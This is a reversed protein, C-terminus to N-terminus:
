VGDTLRDMFSIVAKLMGGPMLGPWIGGSGHGIWHWLEDFSKRSENMTSWSFVDVWRMYIEKVIIKDVYPRMLVVLFNFMSFRRIDYMERLQQAVTHFYFHVKRVSVCYDVMQVATDAPFVQSEFAELAGMSSDLEARVAEVDQIIKEITQYGVVSDTGCASFKRYHKMIYRYIYNDIRSGFVGVYGFYLALKTEGENAHAVGTPQNEAVRCDMNAKGPEGGGECGPKANEECAMLVAPKTKVPTGLKPDQVEITDKILQMTLPISVPGSVAGIKHHLENMDKYIGGMVKDINQSSYLFLPRPYRVRYLYIVLMVLLALIVLVIVAVFFERLKIGTNMFALLREPLLTKLGM